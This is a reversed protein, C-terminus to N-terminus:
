KFKEFAKLKVGSLLFLEFKSCNISVSLELRESFTWSFLVVSSLFSLFCHENLHKPKDTAAM